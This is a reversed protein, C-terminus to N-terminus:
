TKPPAPLGMVPRVLNEYIYEHEPGVDLLKGDDPDKDTHSRDVIQAYRLYTM